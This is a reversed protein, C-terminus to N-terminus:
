GAFGLEKYTVGIDTIIKHMVRRMADQGAGDLGAKEGMVKCVADTILTYSHLSVKHEKAHSTALPKVIACHHGKAKLLEGLKKLTVAGHDAVEANGALDKKAIGAFKPFMKQADPYDTFLRIMVLGGYKTYDAEVPGWSRLVIDFDAM